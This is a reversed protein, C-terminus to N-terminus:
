DKIYKSNIWSHGKTEMTGTCNWPPRIGGSGSFAYKLADIQHDNMTGFEDYFVYPGKWIWVDGVKTMELPEM